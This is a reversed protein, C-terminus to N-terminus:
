HWLSLAMRRGHLPDRHHGHIVSLSQGSGPSSAHGVPMHWAACVRLASPCVSSTQVPRHSQNQMPGHRQTAFIRSPQRLVVTCRHSHDLLHNSPDAAPRGLVEILDDPSCISRAPHRRRAPPTPAPKRAYHTLRLLRPLFPPGLQSAAHPPGACLPRLLSCTSPEPEVHLRSRSSTCSHVLHVKGLGVIVPHWHAQEALCSM